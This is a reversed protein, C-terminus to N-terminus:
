AMEEKTQRMPKGEPKWKILERITEEERKEHYLWVM